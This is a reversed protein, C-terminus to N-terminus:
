CGTRGEGGSVVQNGREVLMKKAGGGGSVVQNGRGEVLM